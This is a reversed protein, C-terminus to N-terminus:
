RKMLAAELRLTVIQKDKESFNFLMTEFDIQKYYYKIKLVAKSECMRLSLLNSDNECTQTVQYNLTRFRKCSKLRNANLNRYCKFLM